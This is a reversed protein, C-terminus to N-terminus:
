TVKYFYRQFVQETSTYHLFHLFYQIGISKNEVREEKGYIGCYLLRWQDSKVCLGGSISLAIKQMLQNSAWFDCTKKSTTSEVKGEIGVLINDLQTQNLCEVQLHHLSKRSLRTAYEYQNFRAQRINELTLLFSRM